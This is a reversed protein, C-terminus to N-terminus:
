IRKLISFNQRIRHFHIHGSLRDINMGKPMGMALDHQETKGNCIFDVIDVNGNQVLGFVGFRLIIILLILAELYKWISCANTCLRFYFGYEFLSFPVFRYQNEFIM